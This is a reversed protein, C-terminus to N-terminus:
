VKEVEYSGALSGNNTMNLFKVATTWGLEAAQFTVEQGPTITHETDPVATDVATKFGINLAGEGNNKIRLNLDGKTINDFVNQTEAPNIDASVKKESERFAADLIAQDFYVDAKSENGVYQLAITLLNTTLQKALAPKTTAMDSIEASVNAKATQSDQLNLVFASAAANFDTAFAPPFDAIHLTLVNKYRETITALTPYDANYYESVGLPYFEEYTALDNRYTYAVLKENESINKELGDRSEKLAITKGEKVALNLSYSSLDGFFANYAATINTLITTFIGGPNNATLRQIHDECFAKLRERSLKPSLFLTRFYKILEIM